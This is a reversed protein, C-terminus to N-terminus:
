SGLNMLFLISTVIGGIYGWIIIVPRWVEKGTAVGWIALAGGILLFFLNVFYAEPIWRGPPFFKGELSLDWFGLNDKLAPGSVESSGLATMMEPSMGQLFDPMGEGNGEGEEAVGGEM